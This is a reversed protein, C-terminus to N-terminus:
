AADGLKELARAATKLDAVFRRYETAAVVADTVRLLFSPHVTVIGRHAGLDMLTGREKMVPVTREALAYAATAGLAVVLRPRVLALERSLWWRCTKIESMNPKQHIRRKGRLEYKFHKVANTVYVEDRDIGADGLAKNFMKGAPGVFPHGALDEQDGPQEGVFLLAARPPGEGFVTQTAHKHLPCRTCGAAQDRLTALTTPEGSAETERATIEEARREAIRTAFRPAADAPRDVMSQARAGAQRLMEPVARTEPMDRWYRKPMERLMAGVHLRAPNFITRYYTNWLGDLVADNEEPPRPAGPGFTIEGNRWAASGSPTVILWNMTAFREIFFPLARRLIHHQPEFWATFLPGDEGPQERFRLFAHMKHIDRRVARAYDLARGLIPDNAQDLVGPEGRAIRWLLAYLLDFRDPASHCAVNDLLEIFARPVAFAPPTAEATEPPPPLLPANGDASFTVAGPALGQAICRRAADRFAAGDADEALVLAYM